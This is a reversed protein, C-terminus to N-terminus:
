NNEIKLVIYGGFKSMTGLDLLRKLRPLISQLKIFPWQTQFVLLSRLSVQRSVQQANHRTYFAVCTILIVRTNSLLGQTNDLLFVVNIVKFAILKFVSHVIKKFIVYRACFKVCFRGIHM